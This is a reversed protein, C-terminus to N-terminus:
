LCLLNTTSTRVHTQKHNVSGRQYCLLGSASNIDIEKGPLLIRIYFMYTYKQCIQNSSSYLFTIIKKLDEIFFIPFM